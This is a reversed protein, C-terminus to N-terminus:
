SRDILRRVEGALVNLDVPKALFSDFGAALVRERDELRANATLAITPNHREGDGRLKAILAYGDEGPMAIDSVVVSSRDNALMSMAEAVSRATTVRAGFRTLAIRLMTRTADDDEVVLVPIGDLQVPQDAPADFPSLLGEDVIPLSITFTAGKGTGASSAAVSGGHLETLDRVISLGIGLGGHTRTLGSQAQRFRDFVYPLFDSAIGDGSDRVRIRAHHPDSQDLEVDIRGGPPTFKVANSLLNRVIQGLRDPDGIVSGRLKEIRSHITQGKTEALPHFTSVAVEVIHELSVPEVHLQLKGTSIRSVDLIDDILKAQARTSQEIAEAAQKRSAPDANEIRLMTAWGLTATMPTRLEHSLTTLFEDKARNAIELEQALRRYRAESDRLTQATLVRESVDRFFFSLGDASPYVNVEIWKGFPAYFDEIRRPAGSEMAARYVREFSTGIARPFMEWVNKGVLDRAKRDFIKEAQPNVMRFIWNRDVFAFADTISDLIQNVRENVEGRVEALRLHSRVRAVVENASFPKVLYDDAGADFGEVRAEEGARASLLIMPIDRLADDERIRRLLEFGDMAPMMIDSLVLDPRRAGIIELAEVGDNATDIQWFGALLRALYDRMDANDDVILVRQEGARAPSPTPSDRENRLWSDADDLFTRPAIAAPTLTRPAAIRDAPLHARGSPLRVRFTSGEGERSEVSVRGGHMRVLEQVLALGIGTGEHTRSRTGRVRHFRKFMNPLESEPIGAGTDRVRLEVEGGEPELTVEITGDFTFKLANSLLNFVIKEWMDRDVYVPAPIPDCRVVFSLGANEIASRFVGALETTFAALDTPEYSAEIRGAEIRSFELLTNVLKLLRLANRHAVEISERDAAVLADRNLVAELPGLLLTLPTRFEHSVNSFFATKARDIEALAEARAQAEHYARANAVATAIQNSLLALFDRYQDDYRLRPSIGAVLVGAPRSDGHRAIPLVAAQHVITEGFDDRHPVSLGDIVRPEDSRPWDIAIDRTQATLRPSGNEDFLYILAFPLDWPEKALVDAAIRCAEDDGNAEPTQAAIDRLIRMRREGLVRATIEAVTVLVGGVGGSEARIPSYSFTFFCEETFGHRDLPLRWNDWGFTKGRMVDDFMPGIIHWIEPFIAAIPRGMAAPHKTSGLIPRYADNYFFIYDPGWAVAMGFSNDLLIGIATRLSQPWSEVPGVATSSWDAARMLAGSEGGGSLVDHHVVEPM